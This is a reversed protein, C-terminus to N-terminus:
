FKEARVTRQDFHDEIEEEKNQKEKKSEFITEYHMQNGENKERPGEELQEM